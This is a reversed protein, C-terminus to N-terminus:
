PSSIICNNGSRKSENHTQSSKGAHKGAIEFFDTKKRCIVAYKGTLGWAGATCRM